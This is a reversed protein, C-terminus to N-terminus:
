RRLFLNEAVLAIRPQFSLLAFRLADWLLQIIIKALVGMREDHWSEPPTAWGPFQIKASTLREHPKSIRAGLPPLSYQPFTGGKLLLAIKYADMRDNKGKGGHIARRYLTHGLVFKIRERERLDAVWYWIFM